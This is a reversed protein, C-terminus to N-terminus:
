DASEDRLFLAVQAVDRIKANEGRHFIVGDENRAIRRTGRTRVM